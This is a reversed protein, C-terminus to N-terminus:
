VDEEFEYEEAEEDDDSTRLASADAAFHQMDKVLDTAHLDMVKSVPDAEEPTFAALFNFGAFKMGLDPDESFQEFEMLMNTSVPTILDTGVMARLKAAIQRLTPYMVLAEEVTTDYDWKIKFDFRNKFAANLEMTGRYKPNMDAIIVLDDHAQVIEGRHALLPIHRRGDLLPYLSSAVKPTMFNVESINLVGGNRVVQTVPGDQWEFKGPTDTPQMRGFLSSPDISVDCPLSYYHLKRLSAYAEGFLTKGAGTDGMVLVNKKERMAVDLITMDQVGYVERGVYKEAVSKHPVYANIEARKTKVTVKKKSASKAAPKTKVIKKTPATKAAM